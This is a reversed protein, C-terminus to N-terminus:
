RTPLSGEIADIEAESLGAEVLVERTDAGLKPVPRRTASSPTASFRIPPATTRVRGETPHDSDVFFGTGALHPDSALDELRNVPMAPVDAARMAELWEATTRSPTAEAILAYLEAIRPSRVNPDNVLPAEVLDDRGIAAFFSRWHRTTFPMM